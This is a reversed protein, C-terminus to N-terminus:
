IINNEPYNGKISHRGIEGLSKMGLWDLYNLNGKPVASFSVFTIQWYTYKMLVKILFVCTILQLVHCTIMM